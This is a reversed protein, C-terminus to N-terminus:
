KGICFSSFIKDLVDEVDVRGTIRGLERAALRLNEAFFEEGEGADAAAQAAALLKAAEALATKQRQRTVLAPEGAFRQAENSLRALLEGIGAGTKASIAPSGKHILTQKSDSDILDSKTQVRWLTQHKQVSLEVPVEGAPQLLLVLDASEARALARRVGEKEVPDATERIGATDILVVPVGDLDLTVEIADRTTGPIDSVIAVERQALRNLLTSKGANPAGAIAVFFGERLREGRHSDALAAEIEAVIESVVRVAPALLNQPVDAEDSFDLNAEILAMADILRERWAEVKRSLAGQYQHMAQRRQAETEAAVLDGLGEAHTLDLKGNLVARKSFEGAQAPRFGPLAGLVAFVKALVARGGHLHLEVTDEGTESRPAAFWLALADDITERSDPDILQARAARRPEPLKVGFTELGVRANPGSIRVVAIAAPLRGSSLAFITEGSM